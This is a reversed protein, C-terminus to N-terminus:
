KWQYLMGAGVVRQSGSFGGNLTAKLNETIRAQVGIAMAKQGAFTATGVGMAFNSDRDMHPISAMAATAAIGERAMADTQQIQQQMQNVQNGLTNVSTSLATSVANLQNVNVADTGQTGEAVNVVQRAAKDSGVAVVGSRGGDDSGTGIAVSHTGSSTAGVGMATSGSGTAQSGNGVATSSAGSAVAGLGGASANSGSPAPASNLSSQNSTFSGGTSGGTNSTKQGILTTLQNAVADLQSVNVADTGARGAALGTIQRNGVNVEGASSQPSSLGYAIYNNLAGVATLSGAGLAISNAFTASAGAGLALANIASSQAGSGLAVSGANLARANAGQAIAQAGGAAAGSGLAIADAQASSSGQGIAVGGPATADVIAGNGIGVGNDGNVVTTPGVAVSEAGVALSDARASNAHFYKQGSVAFSSLANALQRVTVADQAQTGDAVNTLQRYTNGSASGFSVAGLLTQDSTNYPVARSGITVSGIGSLVARDSVSGSGIAVGGAISANSQAGLALANAAQAQAGNGAALSSAGGSIALPGIAVSDTGTAQSDAAISNAHFYKVGGGSQINNVASAVNTVNQNTAYLQSGNVADTSTPSLAGAAVNTITNPGSGGHKASFAGAGGNATPDWLLADNQVQSVQSSVAQLQSVNVADTAAAGAAVNTIRREAGASGVSVEGAPTAGALPATGPNYAALGLNANTTSHAGLAVSNATTAQAGGGIAVSDAGTAQSDPATSNAHFYKM